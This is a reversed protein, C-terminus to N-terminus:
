SISLFMLKLDLGEFFWSCLMNLCHIPYRIYHYGLYRTKTMVECLKIFCYM